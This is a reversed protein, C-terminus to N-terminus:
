YSSTTATGLKGRVDVSRFSSCALILLEFPDKAKSQMETGYPGAGHPFQVETGKPGTGHPFQVETEKPGTGYPSRCETGYPVLGM